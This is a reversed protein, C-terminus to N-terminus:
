STFLWKQLVQQILFATMTRITFNNVNLIYRDEIIKKQDIQKRFNM